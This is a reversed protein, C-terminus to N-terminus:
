SQYLPYNRYDLMSFDALQQQNMPDMLKKVRAFSKQAFKPRIEGYAPSYVGLTFDPNVPVSLMRERILATEGHFINEVREFALKYSPGLSFGKRDNLQAFKKIAPSSNFRQVDADTWPVGLLAWGYLSKRFCKICKMCPKQFEGYQCTTANDLLNYHDAIIISGLEGVCNLIPELQLGVASFLSNQRPMLSRTFLTEDGNFAVWIDGTVIHTTKYHDALLMCPITFAYADPYICYNGNTSLFEFDTLVPVKPFRSPMRKLTELNAETKYWKEFEGIGPHVKRASLILPTGKDLVAAAAVSDAGGSFSVVAFEDVPANRSQLNKEVAINQINPYHKKIAAAMAPSVPRDMTFSHGVYPSIIKLAALACLDPHPLSFDLPFYFNASTSGLRIDNRGANTSKAETTDTEELEFDFSVVIPYTVDTTKILSVHVKM